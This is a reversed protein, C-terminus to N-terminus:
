ATLDLGLEVKCTDANCGLPDPKLVHRAAQVRSAHLVVPEFGLTLELGLEGDEVRSDPQALRESEARNAISAEVTEVSFM